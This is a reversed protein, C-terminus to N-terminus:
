RLEEAVVAPVIMLVSTGAGPKSFVSVSGGVREVREIVSHLLGM